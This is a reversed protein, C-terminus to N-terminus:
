PKILEVIGGVLGETASPIIWSYWTKSNIRDEDRFLKHRTMVLPHKRGNTTMLSVDGQHNFVEMEIVEGGM